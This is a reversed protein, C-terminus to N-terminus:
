CVGVPAFGFGGVYVYLLGNICVGARGGGDQVNASAAAPIALAVALAALFVRM